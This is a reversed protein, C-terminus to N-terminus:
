KITEINAHDGPRRPRHDLAVPGDGEIDVLTSVIVLLLRDLRDEGALGSSRHAREGRQNPLHEPDLGHRDMVGDFALPMRYRDRVDHVKGDLRDGARHALIRLHNGDVRVREVRVPHHHRDAVIVAGPAIVSL